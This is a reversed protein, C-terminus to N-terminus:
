LNKDKAKRVLDNLVLLADLPTIGEISLARLSDGLGDSKPAKSAVQTEQKKGHLWDEFSAGELESLLEYARAIIKKPVGALRAVEIGYSLSAGGQAIKHLFVVKGDEEDVQMQYNKVCKYNKELGQLEHYHTAFLTKAYPTKSALHEAIATAISVGDYTTTGRGIEDLIILSNPTASNLIYASEVMEVMFTSLGSTIFDSAGSRVFLKDIPSIVAEDAPVYSGMQALLTILAVQRLYVSKGAMNPGTLLILQHSTHNLLTDNPVFAFSKLHAEVVLHRGAKINIEGTTTLVPKVLQLKESLYAFASLCDLLAVAEACTKVDKIFAKVQNLVELLLEYERKNITEEASLVKEEHEKLELTVFREANVLTQKRIYSSPVHDAYSKSVEIFYGYVKNFGVKLTPIKTQVKEKTELESLFTKSSFITAKLRDLETDIGLRIMGGNQTDVPADECIHKDILEVLLNLRPSLDTTIVTLLRTNFSPLYLRLALIDLLYNKLNLLDRANCSQMVIRSFLREIDGIQGLLARINERLERKDVLEEVADLREQITVIDKPIHLLWYHLLRGGMATKTEDLTSLLSGVTSGERITSVLELNFLTSRSCEVFMDDQLYVINTIHPTLKKQTEGIYGLLINTAKLAAEKMSFNLVFSKFPKLLSTDKCYLAYKHWAFVHLGKIAKIQKLWTADKIVVDPVIVEKPLYKALMELILNFDEYEGAEFKGTTIDCFAIGFGTKAAFIAGVFNNEKVTLLNEDLVTGPTIIRTVERDVLEGSIAETLQDCMAVKHGANVLKSIYLNVAHYPVGCMPIKGDKGRDRQTLTINLVKAGVKADELFMEYFDGLRFLLICDTYEKKIKAYQQMMPTSFEM